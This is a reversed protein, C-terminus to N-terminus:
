GNQEGVKSLQAMLEPYKEKPVDSLKKAEFSNIITRVDDTHGKAAAGAMAKRVEEFTYEHAPEPEPTPEQKAPPETEPAVPPETAKENDAETTQEPEKAKKGRIKKTTQTATSSNEKAFYAISHLWKSQETMQEAIVGLINNQKEIAEILAEIAIVTDHTNTEM